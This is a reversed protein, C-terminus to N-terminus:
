KVGVEGVPRGGEAKKYFFTPGDYEKELRLVADGLRILVGPHAVGRVVLRAAPNFGGGEGKGVEDLRARELRLEDRKHMLSMISGGFKELALRKEDDLIKEERKFTEAAKFLSTVADAADFGVMGELMSESYRISATFVEIERELRAANNEVAERQVRLFPNRGVEMETTVAAESGLRGAEIGEAAMVKGGVMFAEGPLTVKKGCLVASNMLYADVVVNGGAEISANQVFQCKVDKRAALRTAGGGTVGGKALVSGDADVRAEEVLGRIEVDGGSKVSIGDSLGGHVVVPLPTEVNGTRKNLDGFVEFVDSMKLGDDSAVLAGDGEASLRKGVEADSIIIGRGCVQQLTKDKPLAWKVAGGYQAPIAVGDDFFIGLHQGAKADVPLPIMEKLANGHQTAKVTRSPLLFAIIGPM